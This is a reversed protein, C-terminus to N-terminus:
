VITTDYKIKTDSGRMVQTGIPNRGPIFHRVFAENVVAVKPAGARDADTFERGAILPIGMTRFYDPGVENFRSEDDGDRKPTFGEVTMNGSSSGGGIASVRAATASTVGPLAALRERLDHYLQATREDSYGSLKPTLNFTLLHDTRIGLDIRTLNLLTKGFLGASILLLLSIATQLTVLGKRFVGTSRPATAQGSQDRLAQTLEARSAQLAPYLGFIVSTALALLLAFALVRADLSASLVGPGVTRPPLTA